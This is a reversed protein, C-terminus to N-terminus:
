RMKERYKVGRGRRRQARQTRQPSDEENERTFDNELM